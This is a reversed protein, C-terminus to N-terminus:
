RRDTLGVRMAGGAAALPPCSVRDPAQWDQLAVERAVRWARDRRTGIEEVRPPVDCHPRVGRGAPLGSWDFRFRLLPVGLAVGSHPLTVRWVYGSTNGEHAGGVEEGVFAGRGVHHLMSALEAAGSFTRGGALVVLKGSFVPASPVWHSMLGEPPVDLRALRGDPTRRQFHIEDEDYVEQEFVQGSASAVSVRQGRAEVARYKRLPAEVLFSFLISENPESGGGNERLDLILRGARGRHLEEFLRRMEDRFTTGADRYVRNSFSPVELYALGPALWELSARRREREPARTRQAMPHPAVIRAVVGGAPPAYELAFASEAGRRRHRLVAYCSGPCERMAGTAIRGDHEVLAMLERLLEGEREGDISLLRSGAPVDAADGHGASVFIGETSWHLDLPLLSATRRQHAAVAAAPRVTLHGEGIGNMLEAVAVYVSMPDRAREATALARAKASAWDGPSQHWHIDPLGAEAVGIALLVDERAQAPTLLRPPADAGAAPAAVGALVCAALVAARVSRTPSM